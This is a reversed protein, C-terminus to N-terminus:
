VDVRSEIRGFHRTLFQDVNFHLHALSTTNQIIESCEEFARFINQGMSQGTNERDDHSKFTEFDVIDSARARDIVRSYRLEIPADIGLFIVGKNRLYIVEDVNRISDFAIATVMKESSEHYSRRALVDMGFQEKLDNATQVM